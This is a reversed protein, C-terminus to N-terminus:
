THVNQLQGAKMLSCAVGPQYQFYRLQFYMYMPTTDLFRHRLSSKLASCLFGYAIYIISQLVELHWGWKKSNEKPRETGGGRSSVAWMCMYQSMVNIGNPQHEISLQCFVLFKKDKILFSLSHQFEHGYVHCKFVRSFTQSRKCAVKKATQRKPAFLILNM